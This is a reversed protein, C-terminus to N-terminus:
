SPIPVAMDVDGDINLGVVFRSVFSYFGVTAMAEVIQKDSLFVKLGNFVSDPIRVSLTSYDAFLRAAALEPDLTTNTGDFYPPAFRLELLQETTLGAARGDPEHQLRVCVFRVLDTTAWM